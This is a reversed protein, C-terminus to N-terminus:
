DVSWVDFKRYEVKMKKLLREIFPTKKSDVIIAGSGLRERNFILGETESLYVKNKYKSKTRRGYLAMKVRMKEVQNLGDLTFSFISRPALKLGGVKISAERSYFVLGTRFVDELFSEDFDEFRESAFTVQISVNHRKELAYAINQIEKESVKSKRSLMVLFDVDSRKDAKGQAVSGFLVIQGVNENRYTERVFDFVAPEFEKQLM